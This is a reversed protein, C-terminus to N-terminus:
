AMTEGAHNAIYQDISDIIYSPGTMHLGEWCDIIFNTAGTRRLYNFADRGSMNKETKYLEVCSALFWVKGGFVSM